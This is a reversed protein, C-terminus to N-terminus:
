LIFDAETLTQVNQVVIQMDGYGDGDQDVAVIVGGHDLRHIRVDGQRDAGNFGAGGIFKFAQNGSQGLHGDLPALNIRDQGRTFDSIVDREAAPALSDTVRRYIFVDNGAGGHLLDFGADGFLVDNGAQGFVRDNGDGGQVVDDGNGGNLIDHGNLGLVVDNGNRGLMINNASNGIVRDNGFGGYAQEIVVGNAITFGGEQFAVASVFGGGGTRYQLNADRLDLTANGTGDYIMRDVGGTDWITEWSTANGTPLRYINSRVAYDSAGYMLQLAAIDLAMPGAQFGEDDFYPATGAGTQYGPNYSMTTFIGQNLGAQGYSDFATNVGTMITSGNGTDHPHMLGLGHLLEHTITAYGEGGAELNGGSTRDFAAGNFVGVGALESFGPSYFYGLTGSPMENTDLVLRFDANSENYVVRFEIDTVAEIQDFAAQFRSREYANFGEGIVGDFNDGAQGFYVNVVHDSLILNGMIAELPGAPAVPAFAVNNGGSTPPTPTIPTTAMASVTIEYNGDGFDAFSAAEIYYRGSTTPSFVLQSDRGPGSDDDSGVQRGNEDYLRLYTDTVPDYGRGGLNIQVAQGATLDIGIWDRDGITELRGNFSGGIRTNATTAISAAIDPM